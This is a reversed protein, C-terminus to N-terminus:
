NAPCKPSQLYRSRPALIQMDNFAHTVAASLAKVTTSGLLPIQITRASVSNGPFSVRYQFNSIVYFDSNLYNFQAVVNDGVRTKSVLMPVSQPYCDQAFYVAFGNSAYWRQLSYGGMKM